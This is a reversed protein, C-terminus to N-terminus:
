GNEVPVVDALTPLAADKASIVSDARSVPWDIALQEDFPHVATYTSAPSWDENVLYTYVVNRELTQYSNACGRPIFIAKDPTLEFTQVHGFTSGMRLDVIAAFVRGHAVSVYKEWPEAHIGRLVGISETFTVNNQVVHFDRAGFKELSGRHYNEKFWGREDRHVILEVELLGPIRTKSVSAIAM